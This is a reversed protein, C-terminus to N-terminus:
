LGSDTFEDHVRSVYAPLGPVNQNVPVDGAPKLVVGSFFVSLGGLVGSGRSLLAPFLYGAFRWETPLRRWRRGSPM